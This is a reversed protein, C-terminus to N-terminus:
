RAGLDFRPAHSGIERARVDRAGGDRLAQALADPAADGPRAVLVSFGNGWAADGITEGGAEALRFSFEPRWRDMWLAELVVQRAGGDSLPKAVVYVPLGAPHDPREVFPLRAIVKPADPEILRMWWAGAAAGGDLAFMGLDGSSRAVSDIVGAAGFHPQVPVTFGFHFRESDRIASEGRSIDIHVAYPSQVYTFTSIIIRWIGEVTDVPLRGEHREVIARLMSAERAPRFASGGGQAQKIAILREIVGSREILLRHMEADIRDIERRIDDLTKPPASM